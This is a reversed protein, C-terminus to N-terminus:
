RFSAACSFGPMTTVFTHFEGNEGCPDVGVPLSDLFAHDLPRGILERPLKSEDVACITAELGGNVMARALEGTRMGWLPFLPMLGSGELLRERWVRIDRLFLDGFIM